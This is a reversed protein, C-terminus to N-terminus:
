QEGRPARMTPLHEPRVVVFPAFVLEGSEVYPVSPGECVVPLAVLDSTRWVDVAFRAWWRVGLAICSLLSAAIAVDTV